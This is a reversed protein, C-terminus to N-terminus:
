EDVEIEGTLPILQCGPFENLCAGAYEADLSSLRWTGQEDFIGYLTVPKKVKKPAPKPVLIPISKIYIEEVDSRGDYADNYNEFTEGIYGSVYHNIWKIEYGEPLKDSM